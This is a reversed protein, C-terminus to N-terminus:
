SSYTLKNYEEFNWVKCIFNLQEFRAYGQFRMELAELEAIKVFRELGAMEDVGMRGSIVLHELGWWGLISVSPSTRTSEM